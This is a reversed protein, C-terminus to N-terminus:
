KKKLDEEVVEEWVSPGTSDDGEIVPDETEIMEIVPIVIKKLKEM